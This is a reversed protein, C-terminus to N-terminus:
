NPMPIGNNKKLWITFVVATLFLPVLAYLFMVTYGFSQVIAGAVMPGLLTGTDTGIYCTSGGAGRREPPTIKMAMAQIMSYASSYGFANLVACTWLQWTEHCFALMILNIVFIGMCPFIAKDAGYKDAIKGSLPRAALMAIANITYYMPLGSIERDEVMLVLFSMSTSVAFHMIMIMVAEKAIMTRLSIKIKKSKVDGYDLRAGLVTALLILGSAIFYTYRFGITESLTLGLGPGIAGPLVTSLMYIGIGSAIKEHPLSETAMALCLAASTGNSIGHLLRFAVVMGINTSIGYGFMGIANLTIVALYLKKKNWSDIAPGSIPRMALATLAFVGSVVGVVADTANMERCFLPLLTYTMMSGFSIVTNAFFLVIFNHSWITQKKATVEM